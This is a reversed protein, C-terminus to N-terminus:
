KKGQNTTGRFCKRLNKEKVDGYWKLQTKELWKLSHNKCLYKGLKLM